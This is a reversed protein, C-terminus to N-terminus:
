EWSGSCENGNYGATKDTRILVENSVPRLSEWSDRHSITRFPPSFSFFSSTRLPLFHAYLDIIEHLALILVSSTKSLLISLHSFLTLSVSLFLFDRHTQMHPSFFSPGVRRYVSYFLSGPAIKRNVAISHNWQLLVPASSPDLPCYRRSHFLKWSAFLNPGKPPVPMWKCRGFATFTCIQERM